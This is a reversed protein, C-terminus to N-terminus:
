AELFVALRRNAQRLKRLADREIQRIRERTVGFAHGTEELTLRDRYRRWLIDIEREDLVAMACELAQALETSIVPEDFRYAGTKPHTDAM